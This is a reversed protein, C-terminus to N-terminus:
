APVEFALVTLILERSTDDRHHLVFRFGTESNFGLQRQFNPHSKIVDPIKAVVSSFDAGRNFVIVATKTDRWSAYDLLQDLAARLSGPGRWFKCEAVFVNRGGVRILIDTRGEFNFTEGTAQGEYQGNLQVLFHQRLDEERMDRFAKPSREMVAVMNSIVSLIHEYHQMDLAPEPPTPREASAAPRTVPKRRVSPVAFTRPAGERRRLPFGLDAVLGQDKILKQRRTEIRQRATGRLSANFVSVDNSVWQLWQRIQSLDHRFSTKLASADHEVETYTLVIESPCVTARPPNFTFSSPRCQLLEHDGNFPVFFSVTTGRVYLPKSTDFRARDFDGRVDVDAERQDTQIEAEGLQPADVRYKQEFYDCLSELGTNLLQNPEMRDIEQFMEGKQAELAERLEFGSFLLGESESM